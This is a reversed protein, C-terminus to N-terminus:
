KIQLISMLINEYCYANCKFKRVEVSQIVMITDGVSAQKTHLVLQMAQVLDITDRMVTSPHRLARLIDM